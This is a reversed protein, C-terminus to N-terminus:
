YAGSVYNLREKSLQIQCDMVGIDVGNGAGFSYSVESECLDSRYKLWSIQSQKIAGEMEAAGPIGEAANSRWVKFGDTIKKEIEADIKKLEAGLCVRKDAQSTDKYCDKAFTSLPFLCIAAIVINSIKM